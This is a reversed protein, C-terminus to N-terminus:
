KVSLCCKTCISEFIELVKYVFKPAGCHDIRLGTRKLKHAASIFFINFPLSHIWYASLEVMLVNHVMNDISVGKHAM